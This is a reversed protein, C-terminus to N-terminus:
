IQPELFKRTNAAIVPTMNHGKAESIKAIVDEITLDAEDTEALILNDPMGRLTEPNFFAGFSFYIGPRRLMYAAEPKGRFGHIAWNQKPKLDKKLGVIIDSGKVNHLVMPKCLKESILIQRKLAQMQKFLPAGAINLDVGAEGIAATQPLMALRELREWDSEAIENVTDWPHIGASYAQAGTLAPLGETGCIRLSIIGRPQPETHHTHIDLIDSDCPHQEKEKKLTETISIEDSVERCGMFNLRTEM